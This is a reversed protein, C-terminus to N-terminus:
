TSKPEAAVKEAAPHFKCFQSAFLSTTAGFSGSRVLSLGPVLALADSVTTIGRAQLEEGRIVTVSAPAVQKDIPTRTASVVIPRLIATDPQQALVSRTAFLLAVTAIQMRM